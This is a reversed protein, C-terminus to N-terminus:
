EVDSVKGNTFTVKLDRYFYIQKTGAKAVRLPQGLAAAVQDMTQGVEITQPPQDVPPAPPAIAPPPAESPAAAPVPPAIPESAAPEQAQAANGTDIALVNGVFDQVQSVSASELYEKSFQFIVESKYFTPPNVGNCNDCAVIRFSIQEKKVNVDVSMPYVKEANQFYRSSQKVMATCFGGPAHLEGDQYKAPCLVASTPPVGLVGGKRLVLVTGPEVIVPGNADRALKVLRYASKVQAALGGSQAAGLVPFFSVLSSITAAFRLAAPSKPRM